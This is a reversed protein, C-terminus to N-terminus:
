RFTKVFISKNLIEKKIGTAHSNLGKKSPFIIKEKKLGFGRGSFFWKEIGQGSATGWRKTMTM